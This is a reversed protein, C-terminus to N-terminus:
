SPARELDFGVGGLRAFASRLARQDTRLRGRAAAHAPRDRAAAAAGLARLDGAVRDAAGALARLAIAGAGAPQHGAVRTAARGLAAYAKAIARAARARRPAPGELGPQRRRAAATVRAAAAALSRAGDGRPPPVAGDVTLSGLLPACVDSATANRCRVALRSGDRLSLVMPDAPPRGGTTLATANGLRVLRVPGSAAAPPSAPTVELRSGDVHVLADGRRRWDAGYSVTVADAFTARSAPSPSAPALAWGVLFADIPIALLVVPLAWERLIELRRVRCTDSAGPSPRLGPNGAGTAAPPM